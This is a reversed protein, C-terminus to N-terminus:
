GIFTDPPPTSVESFYLGSKLDCKHFAISNLHNCQLIASDYKSMNTSVVENENNNSSEKEEEGAFDAEIYHDNLLDTFSLFNQFVSGGMFTFISVLLM